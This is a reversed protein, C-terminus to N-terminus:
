QKFVRVRLTGSALDVAVGTLNYLRVQVTDAAECHAMLICGSLPNSFSVVCFDGPAAGAVTVPTTGFSQNAVSAPDWTKSGVLEVNGFKAWAGAGASATADTCVYGEPGGAVPSGMHVRQGNFWGGAYNPVANGQTLRVGEFSANAFFGNLNVEAPKISSDLVHLHSTAANLGAKYKTTGAVTTSFQESYGVVALSKCNAGLGLVTATGAGVDFTNSIDKFGSVVARDANISVASQGATRISCSETAFNQLNAVNANQITVWSDKAQDVASTQLFVDNFNNFFMGKGSVGGAVGGAGGVDCRAYLLEGTLTTSGNAADFYFGWDKARFAYLNRLKSLYVTQDAPDTIFGRYAYDVRIDAVECQSVQNVSDSLDVGLRAATADTNPWQIAFKGSDAVSTAVTVAKFDGQPKLITSFLGDGMLGSQGSAVTRTTLGATLKFKGAPLRSRQVTASAFGQANMFDVHAQIAAAADAVGSADALWPSDTALRGAENAHKGSSADPYVLAAGHAVMGSGKAAATPDVLQARFIALAAAIKTAVSQILASM